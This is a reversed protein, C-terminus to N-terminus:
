GEVNLRAIVHDDFGPVVAEGDGVCEDVM